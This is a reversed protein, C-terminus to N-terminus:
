AEAGGFLKEAAIMALEDRREDILADISLDVSVRDGLLVVGHDVPAPRSPWELAPAGLRDLADRLRSELRVADSGAVLVREGGRAVAAIRRALLAAYADDNLAVIARHAEALVEDVLEQRAALARDRAALRASARVTEAEAAADHEARALTAARERETEERASALLADAQARADAVVAAAEASADGDIRKIIDALAV